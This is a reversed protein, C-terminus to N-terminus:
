SSFYRVREILPYFARSPCEGQRSPTMRPAPVELGNVVAIPLRYPDVSRGRLGQHGRAADRLM